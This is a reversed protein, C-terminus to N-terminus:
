ADAPVRKRFSWHKWAGGELFELWVGVARSGNDKGHRLRAAELARRAYMTARGSEGVSNYALAAHGYATNMFGQLGLREYLELLREARDSYGYWPVVGVENDWTGLLKEIEQVEALAVDDNEPQSCRRCACEFGFADELWSSRHKALQFPDLYSITIEEGESIPRTAYVAHMLTATDISYIANPACDHNFRAAEPFLALHEVGAIPLAFANAKVVDQHSVKPDNYIKALSLFHTQTSAPLQAMAVRLFTERDFPTPNNDSHVLLVPNVNTIRTGPRIKATAVAGFGKDPLARVDFYDVEHQHDPNPQTSINNEIASVQTSIQEAISPTTFFSVGRSERFDPFSYVCLKDNLYDLHKTCAPGAPTMVLGGTSVRHLEHRTEADTAARSYTVGTVPEFIDHEADDVTCALNGALSLHESLCRKDLLKNANCQLLITVVCLLLKSPLITRMMMVMM